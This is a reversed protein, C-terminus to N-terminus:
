EMGRGQSDARPVVGIPLETVGAPAPQLVTCWPLWYELVLSTHPASPAALSPGVKLAARIDELLQAASPRRERYREFLCNQRARKIIQFSLCSTPGMAAPTRGRAAAPSQPPLRGHAGGHM